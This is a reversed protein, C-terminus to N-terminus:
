KFTYPAKLKVVGGEKYIELIPFEMGKFKERVMPLLVDIVREIESDNLNIEKALREVQKIFQM